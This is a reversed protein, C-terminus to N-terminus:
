PRTTKISQILENIMQDSATLLGQDARDILSMLLEKLEEANEM